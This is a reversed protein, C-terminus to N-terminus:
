IATYGGDVVIETGTMFSAEESAAIEEPTRVIPSPEGGFHRLLMNGREPGLLAAALAMGGFLLATLAWAALVHIWHLSM